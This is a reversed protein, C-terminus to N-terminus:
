EYNIHLAKRLWTKSLIKKKPFICAYLYFLHRMLCTICQIKLDAIAHVIFSSDFSQFDGTMVHLLIM